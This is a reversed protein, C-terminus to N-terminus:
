RRLFEAAKECLENIIVQADQASLQEGSKDSVHAEHCLRAIDLRQQETMPVESEKGVDENASVPITDPSVTVPSATETNQTPDVQRQMEYRSAVYTAAFAVAFSFRIPTM